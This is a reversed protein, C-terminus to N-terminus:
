CRVVIGLYLNFDGFYDDERSVSQQGINRWKRKRLKCSRRIAAEAPVAGFGIQPLTSEQAPKKSDSKLQLAENGQQWLTRQSPLRIHTTVIYEFVFVVRRDRRIGATILPM